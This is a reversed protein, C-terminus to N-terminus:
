APVEALLRLGAMLRVQYAMFANLETLRVIDADSVGAAQLTSIDTDLVDRPSVAVRDMYAIVHGLGEASGDRDPDALLKGIEDTIMAMYHGALDPLANQTAMRAALAARLSHSWSGCDVPTLVAKEAQRTMELVNTRATLAEHASSGEHIGSYRVATSNEKDM